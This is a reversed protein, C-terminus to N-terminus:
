WWRWGHQNFFRWAAGIFLLRHRWGKGAAHGGFHTIRMNPLYALGAVQHLRISLDFDEFYLFYDPCFGGVASLAARRCLMYCGSALPVDWLVADRTQESLQYHQLRRQWCRQLWAPACGRLALDLVSPYRKCLLQRQGAGDWAAPAVLGIQPQARLFELGVSLADEAVWVDPNLILHWAAHDRHLALNHAAAFGINGHGSIVETSAPLQAAALMELLLPRWTRGPGNDVISVQAHQLWGGHQAHRLAQALHQLCGTLLQLAPAYTVIAISLRTPAHLYTDLAATAAATAAPPLQAHHPATSPVANVIFQYILATPRQLLARLLTPSRSERWGAADWASAFESNALPMITADLTRVALGCEQLLRLLSAHTFFRLHTADLLGEPRYRLEDSLLEAILGAYAANPVSLLVQGGTALLAPLQRLLQQPQRLHELIDACVIYDYRQKSFLTALEVQELDACLLRRYAAAAVAVAQANCEVGDVTCQQEALYRGLVGPGSGLDLVQSRPAIHRALLALSDQSHADFQRYYIHSDAM